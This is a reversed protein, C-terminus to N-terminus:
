SGNGVRRATFRCTGNVITVSGTIEIGRDGHVSISICQANVLLSYSLQSAMRLPIAKKIENKQFYKEYVEDGGANFGCYFRNGLRGFHFIKSPIIPITISAATFAKPFPNRNSRAQSIPQLTHFIKINM